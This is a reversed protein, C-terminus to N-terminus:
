ELGFDAKLHRDLWRWLYCSCGGPKQLSLLRIGTRELRDVPLERESTRGLLFQSHVLGSPYVRKMIGTFRLRWRSPLAKGRWNLLECIPARGGKDEHHGIVRFLVRDGSLLTYAILEGVEWDCHNRFRKRVKKPAPPPSELQTRLKELVAKRKERSKGEWRHLDGGAALTELAKAKVRDELRGLQWQIAALALWVTPGEDPDDFSSGWEALIRDTAEAPSLGDGIHDKYDERIDAASDDSFIATGWAGM